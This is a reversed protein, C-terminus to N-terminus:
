KIVEEWVGLGRGDGRAASALMGVAGEIEGTLGSLDGGAFRRGEGGSKLMGWLGIIDTCDRSALGVPEKELSCARLENCARSRRTGALCSPLVRLPFNSTLTRPPSADLPDPLTPAHNSNRVPAPGSIGIYEDAKGIQNIATPTGDGDHMAHPEQITCPSAPSPAGPGTLNSPSLSLSLQMNELEQCARASNMLSLRHSSDQEGTSWIISLRPIVRSLALM